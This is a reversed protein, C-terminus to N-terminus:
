VNKPSRLFLLHPPLSFIIQLVNPIFGSIGIQGRVDLPEGFRM